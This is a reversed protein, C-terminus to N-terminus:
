VWGREVFHLLYDRLKLHENKELSIQMAPISATQPKYIGCRGEKNLTVRWSLPKNQRTLVLTVGWDAEIVRFDIGGDAMQIDDRLAEILQNHPTKGLQTMIEM